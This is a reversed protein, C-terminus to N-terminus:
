NAFPDEKDLHSHFSPRKKDLPKAVSSSSSVASEADSASPSYQEWSEVVHSQFTSQKSKRPKPKPASTPAPAGNLGLLDATPRKLQALEPRFVPNNDYGTGLLPDIGTRSLLKIQLDILRERLAEYSCGRLAEVWQEAGRQTEALFMHRREPPDESFSLSFAHASESSSFEQQVHSNELM